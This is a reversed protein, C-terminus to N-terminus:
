GLITQDMGRSGYEFNWTIFSGIEHGTMVSDGGGRGGGGGGM